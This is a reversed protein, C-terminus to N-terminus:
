ANISKTNTALLIPFLVHLEKQIGDTDTQDAQTQFADCTPYLFHWIIGDSFYYRTDRTIYSMRELNVSVLPVDGVVGVEAVGNLEEFEVPLVFAM